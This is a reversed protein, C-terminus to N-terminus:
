NGIGSAKMRKKHEAWADDVEAVSPTENGTVGQSILHGKMASTYEYM